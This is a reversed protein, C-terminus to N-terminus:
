RGQTALACLPPIGITELEEMIIKDCEQVGALNRMYGFEGPPEWEIEDVTGYVYRMDEGM